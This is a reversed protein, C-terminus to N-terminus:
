PHPTAKRVGFTGVGILDTFLFVKESRLGVTRCRLGRLGRLGKLVFKRLWCFGVM